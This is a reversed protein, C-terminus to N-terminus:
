PLIFDVPYADIIQKVSQVPRDFNIEPRLSSHSYVCVLRPMIQLSNLPIVLSPCLTVARSILYRFGANVM